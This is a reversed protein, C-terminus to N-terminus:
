IYNYSIELKNNIKEMHEICYGEGFQGENDKWKFNTEFITFTKENLNIEKRTFDGLAESIYDEALLSSILVIYM